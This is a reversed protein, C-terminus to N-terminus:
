VHTYIYLVLGAHNTFVISLLSDSQSLTLHLRALQYCVLCTHMLFKTFGLSPQASHYAM